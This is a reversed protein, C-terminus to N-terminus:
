TSRSARREAWRWVVLGLGAGLTKGDIQQRSHLCKHIYRLVTEKTLTGFRDRVSIYFCKNHIAYRLSVPRPTKRRIRLRPEIDAYIRVGAEDVPAQYMANMLLEETVQVANRRLSSRLRAKRTAQM